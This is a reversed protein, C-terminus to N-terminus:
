TVPSPPTVLPIRRRGLAFAAASAVVCLWPFLWGGRRFGTDESLLRLERVDAVDTFPQTEAPISGDPEV